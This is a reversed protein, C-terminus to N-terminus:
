RIQYAAVARKLVGSAQAWRTTPAAAIIVSSSTRGRVFCALETYHNSKARTVYADIVCSGTGGIFRIGYSKALIHATSAEDETLHEIRFSPWDRLTEDGQKPTANLYLLYVGSSSFQAASVEGADGAVLHM